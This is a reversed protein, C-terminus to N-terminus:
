LLNEVRCIKAFHLLRERSYSGKALSAKLASRAVDVGIKNRFKLCDAVSKM